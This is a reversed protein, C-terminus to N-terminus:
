SQKQKPQIKSFSEPPYKKPNKAKLIENIAWEAHEAIIANKSKALKQLQPLLDKRKLNGAVVCANRQLGFLKARMLPSGAFRALFEQESQMSLIEKLDIESGAIASKFDPQYTQKQRFNHPCVEQCLDCGFVWDGILPRLKKPIPGKNEITLYSICLNADISYDNKLAKTPCVTICRTCTGCIGHESQNFKDYDLKQDVIIEGILVWSGFKPTILMTNKGIYGLNSETAYARELLPGSDAFFRTQAKPFSKKIFQDLKKLKNKFIKHYDRGWAYRAIRGEQGSNLHPQYYNLTVLIISKANPVIKKPNTKLPSHKELYDMQAHNKQQLWNEYFQKDKPKNLARTIKCDSFELTNIAFDKILQNQNNM